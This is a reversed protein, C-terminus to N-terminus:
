GCPGPAAVSAGARAAACASSYTVGNCGCVPADTPPCAKAPQACVGVGACAGLPRACFSGCPCDSDVNCGAACAEVACTASCCDGAVTNGDDCEEDSERVGNGCRPVRVARFRRTIGSALDRTTGTLEWCAADMRGRLRVAGFKGRGCSPWTVDVLTTGNSIGLLVPRPPCVFGLSAKYDQILISTGPRVRGPGGGGEVQFSGGPCPVPQAIAPVSAAIVALAVSVLRM